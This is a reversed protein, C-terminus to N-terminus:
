CKKSRSSFSPLLLRDSVPILFDCKWMPGNLDICLVLKPEEKKLPSFIGLQAHSGEIGLWEECCYGLDGFVEEIVSEIMGPGHGEIRLQIWSLPFAGVFRELDTLKSREHVSVQIPRDPNNVLLAHYLFQRIFTELDNDHWSILPLAPPITALVRPKPGTRNRSFKLIVDQVLERLNIEM